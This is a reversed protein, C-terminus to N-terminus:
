RSPGYTLRRLAVEAPGHAGRRRMLDALVVTALWVAVAVGAAIAPSTVKLHLAYSAFLAAWVVSQTLYFTMSRQGLAALANTVPGQRETLRAAVLAILAAYGLGCAYGSVQHLGAAIMADLPSYDAWVKAKALALPLGGALGLPIGVFATARLLRVHRHPEELLRHRAALIGILFPAITSVVMVLGTIPFVFLRFLLEDLFGEPMPPYQSEGTMAEEAAFVALIIAGVPLFAMALLALTRDRFRLVGVFVLAVLGYVTLIDGFFLLAVHVLGFAILWRARRRLLARIWPWEHGQETRRRHIQALGYGFLAAFMPYGRFEVFMITGATAVRDAASLVVGEGGIIKTFIYTHALAIILLMVGRALDPALVRQATPVPSASTDTVRASGPM